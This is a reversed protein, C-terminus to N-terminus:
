TKRGHDVVGLRVPKNPDKKQFKTKSLTRGLIDTLPISSCMNWQFFRLRLLALSFAELRVDARNAPKAMTAMTSIWISSLM